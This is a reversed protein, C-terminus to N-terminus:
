SKRAVAECWAAAFIAGPTNSFANWGSIMEQIDDDTAWGRSQFEDSWKEALMGISVEAFGRADDGTFSEYIASLQLESFGARSLLDGIKRGLEPDHGNERRLRVYLDGYKNVGPEQPFYIDGGHDFEKIGIVGGPKLVRYAERLGRLPERLNSLVASIFVADFSADAFPLQYLDGPEFSVNTIGQRAANERAIAVHAEELETGVAEGPSLHQAFGITITGPGCGCDLLRMGPKLYPLFFAAHSPASRQAMITTAAPGYGMTYQERPQSM